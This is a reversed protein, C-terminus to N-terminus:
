PGGKGGGPAPREELLLVALVAQQRVGHVPVLGDEHGIELPGLIRFAFAGMDPHYARDFIM